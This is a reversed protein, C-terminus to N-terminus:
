LGRWQEYEERPVERIPTAGRFVCVDGEEIRLLDEEKVQLEILIFDRKTHWHVKNVSTKYFCYIGSSPHNMVAQTYQNLIYKFHSVGVSQYNDCDREVFKYVNDM